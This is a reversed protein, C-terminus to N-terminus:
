EEYHTPYPLKHIPFYDLTGRDAWESLDKGGNAFEVTGAVEDVKMILTQGGVTMLGFYSTAGEVEEFYVPFFAGLGEELFNNIIKRTM